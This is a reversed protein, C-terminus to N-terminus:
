VPISRRKLLVAVPRGPGLATKPNCKRRVVSLEHPQFVHRRWAQETGPGRALSRFGILLEDSWSERARSAVRSASALFFPLFDTAFRTALRRRLAPALLSRIM